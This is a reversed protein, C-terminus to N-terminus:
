LLLLSVINVSDMGKVEGGDLTFGTLGVATDGAVLGIDKTRFHLIWTSIVIAVWMKFTLKRTPWKPTILYRVTFYSALTSAEFSQRKRLDLM